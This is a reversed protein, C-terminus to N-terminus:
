EVQKFKIALEPFHITVENNSDYDPYNFIVRYYTENDKEYTKAERWMFKQVEGSQLSISLWMNDPTGGKGIGSSVKIDVIFSTPTVTASLDSSLKKDKPTFKLTPYEKIQKSKVPIKWEGHVTEYNGKSRQSQLGQGAKKSSSDSGNIKTVLIHTDKLSSLEQFEDHYKYIFEITHNERDINDQGTYYGAEKKDKQLGSNLDILVKGNSDVLAFNLTFEDFKENLLKSKQPLTVIFHFGTEKQDAYVQELQVNIGKDNSAGGQKTIFNSNNLTKSSSGGFGLFESVAKGIPSFTVFLGIILIASLVFSPKFIRNNQWKRKENYTESLITKYTQDYAKRAELSLPKLSKLEVFKEENDKM